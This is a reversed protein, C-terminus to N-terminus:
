WKDEKGPLNDLRAKFTIIMTDSVVHSVLKNRMDM